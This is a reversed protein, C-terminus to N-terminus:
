PCKVDRLDKQELLRSVTQQTIAKAKPTKAPLLSCLEGVLTKEETVFVPQRREMWRRWPGSEHPPNRLDSHRLWIRMDLVRNVDNQEVGYDPERLIEEMGKLAAEFETEQFRVYQGCTTGNRINRLKEATAAPADLDSLDSCQDEPKEALRRQIQAVAREQWGPDPLIHLKLLNSASEFPSPDYQRLGASWQFVRRTTLFMEQEGPRLRFRVRPQVVYPEESLGILKSDCCVIAQTHLPIERGDSVHLRDTFVSTSWDEASEVRYYSPAVSTYSTVIGIYESERYEHRKDSTEIRISLWNANGAEARAQEKEFPTKACGVLGALSASLLLMSGAAKLRM